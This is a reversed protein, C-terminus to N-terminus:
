KAREVKRKEYESQSLPVAGNIIAKKIAEKLVENKMRISGEVDMRAALNILAPRKMKEVDYMAKDDANLKITEAGVIEIVKGHKRILFQAQKEPM